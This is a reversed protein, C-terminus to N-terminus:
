RELDIVTKVEHGGGSGDEFAELADELPVRRTVVRRLWGLDADALAQAGARYHTLNANVSGIVADNDLVIGRNAAGVDFELRRGSSTVGTLCTVGYSGTASLADLVVQGAGTAEIVIDPRVAEAVEPVPRSHYEAGLDAVLGPKPGDTVRDLVHVELGRRVGLLAALLGIPGAGTVLAVRPEFWAREGVLQVQEWAKAVVTTPELLMGVDELSPDLRVAYDAEVTWRQAAFGDLAKIGRETYRGNRCMDFQGRACAGCPEPDPRRVVGAVLDGPAFGSGEPATRVRGLSEHGLVLRERGPPAWGYEGAAIERDTGCVGVAIGDVLLEGPGPEPEDVDTVALTGPQGPVLTLARM